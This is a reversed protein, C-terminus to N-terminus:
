TLTSLLHLPCQNFVEMSSNISSDSTKGQISQCLLWSLSSPTADPKNGCVVSVFLSRTGSNYLWVDETAQRILAFSVENRLTGIVIFQNLMM